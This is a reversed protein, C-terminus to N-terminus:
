ETIALNGASLWDTGRIQVPCGCAKLRGALDNRSESSNSLRVRHIGDIDSPIKPGGIEAIVVCKPRAALALGLEFFVNPRSQLRKKVDQKSSKSDRLGSRLIVEEDPTLLVLVAGCEQLLAELTQRIYPAPDGTLEIARSWEIPILDLSRLFEFIGRRANSDPGHVVFVQRAKPDIRDMSPGQLFRLSQESVADSLSKEDVEVGVFDIIAQLREFIKPKLIFEEVGDTSLCRKALEADPDPATTTVLIPLDSIESISELEALSTVAELGLGLDLIM